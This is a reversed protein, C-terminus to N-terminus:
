SVYDLKAAKAWAQGLKGGEVELRLDSRKEPWFASQNAVTWANHISRFHFSGEFSKLKAGFAAKKRCIPCRCMRLQSLDSKSLTKRPPGQDLDWKIARQSQYPLFISGFGAAQRWGISDGSDAGLAYVAPFTRTGGAGFVHIIAKPFQQRILHLAHGIFVEPTMRSIENTLRRHQLLPVVGGLGVWRFHQGYEALTKLSLKIETITRGHVVPMIIKRKFQESLRFFNKMSALIKKTRVAGSDSARPPHDLSVFIDADIKAIQQAVQRWTWSSSPFASLAFGGSDVMLPGSIGLKKKLDEHFHTVKLSPKRIACGLSTLFPTGTLDPYEACISSTDVSQGLWVIPPRLEKRSRESV